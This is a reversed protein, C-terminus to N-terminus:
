VTDQSFFFFDNKDVTLLIKEEEPQLVELVILSIELKYFLQSTTIVQHHIQLEHLEGIWVILSVIKQGHCRIGVLHSQDVQSVSTIHEHHTV